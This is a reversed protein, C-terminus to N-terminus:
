FMRPTQIVSIDDANCNTNADNLGWPHELNFWHGIEHTTTRGKNYPASVVGTTGFYRYGIVVGDLYSQVGPPYAYGLLGAGINCIWINLYKTPDWNDIGGMSTFKVNDSGNWNSVTTETRTIGSTWNGDPDTSAMCFEIQTDAAVSQFEAPTNTADANMRRYDDNLVDIQSSIQEDSINQSQTKYVVHVVVPVTIVIDEKESSHNAIWNQTQQEILDRKAAFEPDQAMLESVKESYACHQQAKSALAFCGLLCFLLIRRLISV